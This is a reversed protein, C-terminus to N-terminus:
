ISKPNKAFLNRNFAVVEEHTPQTTFKMLDLIALDRIQPATKKDANELAEKLDSSNLETCYAPTGPQHKWSQSLLGADVFDFGADKVLGSVIKKANEDNGSIAMAINENGSVLSQALLNNFAKIVPRGIQESVWESEVKGAKLEEIEGDRFPYYNATDVIILNQPSEEFLNKPLDPIAITPVSLIVVDVNKVVDMLSAPLAGIENAKKELEEFVDRNSVKVQHGAAIMKKAITGGIAGTGIIGIKM